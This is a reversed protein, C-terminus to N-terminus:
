DQPLCLARPPITVSFSTWYGHDERLENGQEVRIITGLHEKAVLQSVYLGYGAGEEEQEAAAKGRVFPHFIREREEELIRPGYSGVNLSVAEAPKDNVTIEVRGGRSSYKLANDIFTHPIVAVAQPNATVHRYSDGTLRPTVEKQEFQSQYIRQYKLVLGHVRFRSCWGPEELWEPHMLFRAVNLKEELLKSAFYIAKESHSAEKLKEELDNGAYGEEIMVNINQSIQANIQKYDHVFSLGRQIEDRLPELFEKDFMEKAIFDDLAGKKAASIRAELGEEQASLARIANDFRQKSVIRDPQTRKLKRRAPTTDPAERIIIGGIVLDDAVRFYSYGYSCLGIDPTHSRECQKTPCDRCRSPWPLASGAFKQGRYIYPYPFLVPKVSM